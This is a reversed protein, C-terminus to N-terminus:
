RNAQRNFEFSRPFAALRRMRTTDSTVIKETM